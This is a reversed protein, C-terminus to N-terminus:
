LTELSWAVGCSWRSQSRVPWLCVIAMGQPTRELGEESESITEIPFTAWSAPAECTMALAVGLSPDEIRLASTSEHWAPRQWREDRLCVNFELGVVPIDLDIVEYRFLLRSARRWMTVTKRLMGDHLRRSLSVTTSSASAAQARPAQLEWPGDSWLHHEGWTSRWVASLTPMTSLAHDIFCSRRRDDYALYSELGEEKVGLLEHITLPTQREESAVRTLAKDRLKAHYSEPRRALTDVLNLQHPYASLETVTGGEEPDIVLSLTQGRLILEPVGDGDCDQQDQAPLAGGRRQLLGEANILHHYVARRLHALYLGGFVGHWYADNCQAMYLARQAEMILKGPGGKADEPAPSHRTDLTSPKRTKSRRNNSSKVRLESSQVEQLQRSVGLMKQHMANAEPYKVFFNRFHGGSWELMEDYSGGPLYVRGNPGVAQLYDHYTATHLWSSEQELTTLFRELWGQEYVWASTQPWLGFKEGDDAYAIAVPPQRVLRKLFDVTKAVDHFPMWYRLRRSTPFLVVSEGAYETVYCGLLDWGHEDDVQLDHPLVQRAIHFQNADLLTYRIGARALTSPLEPEWVRETLWLGTPQTGFQQRIAEQMWAIQGYRDEEPIIPLIPEYYGSALFEVQGRQALRRLRALFAPQHARFWDLLSGSYHLTVRITPHRELITVFPEYANQFAKEFVFDFNGVPQHCHFAMLLYVGERSPAARLM